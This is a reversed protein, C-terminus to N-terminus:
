KKIIDSNRHNSLGVVWIQQINEHSFLSEDIAISDNANEYALPELKYWDKLYHAVILRLYNLIKLIVYKSLNRDDAYDNLKDYIKNANLEYELSLTKLYKIVSM